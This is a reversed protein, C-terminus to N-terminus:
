INKNIRSSGHRGGVENAYVMVLGEYGDIEVFWCDNSGAVKRVVVAANGHYPGRAITIKSGKRM